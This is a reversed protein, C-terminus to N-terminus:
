HIRPIICTYTRFSYDIYSETRFYMWVDESAPEKGNVSSESDDADLDNASPVAASTAAGASVAQGPQQPSIGM